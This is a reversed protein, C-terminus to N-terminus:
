NVTIGVLWGALKAIARCGNSISSLLIVHSNHNKIIWAVRQIIKVHFHTLYYQM